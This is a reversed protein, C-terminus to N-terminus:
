TSELERNLASVRKLIGRREQPTRSHSAGQFQQLADSWDMWRECLSRECLDRWRSFGAQDDEHNECALLFAPTLSASAIARWLRDALVVLPEREPAELEPAQSAEEESPEGLALLGRSCVFWRRKHFGVELERWLKADKENEGSSSLVEWLTRGKGSTKSQSWLSELLAGTLAKGCYTVVSRVGAQHGRVAELKLGAQACDRGTARKIAREWRGRLDCELWWVDDDTLVRDFFLVSHYHPHHGNKGQTYDLGRLYHILGYSKLVKRGQGSITANWSSQLADLLWALDDGAQHPLTLTLMVASRDGTLIKEAAVQLKAVQEGALRASCIPCMGRSGCTHLGGVSVSGKETLSVSVLGEPSYLGCTRLSKRSTVRRATAMLAWRRASGSGQASNDRQKGLSAEPARGPRPTLSAVM